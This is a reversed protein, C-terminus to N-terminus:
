DNYGALAKVNRVRQSVNEIEQVSVYIPRDDYYQKRTADITSRMDPLQGGSAYKFKLPNSAANTAFFRLLDNMTLTNDQSNIYELLALNNATTRKNTVYEGGEVEARGGLVKVGGNAHSNGQIVGGNAYKTAAITGIQVGGLAAAVSALAVGLAWPQVALANTVAVATNGIAQALQIKKNAINRKREANEARKELQEQRQQLQEEKKALAQQQDYASQRATMEANIEDLLMLRRDGRATSLEDELSEIKNNHAETISEVEDYADQIIDLEDEIAKREKDIAYMTNHYQVEVIQNASESIMQIGANIVKSIGAAWERANLDIEDLTNKILSALKSIDTKQKELNFLEIDQTDRKKLFAAWEDALDSSINKLKDIIAGGDDIDLNLKYEKNIADLWKQMESKTDEIEQKVKKINYIIFLSKMAIKDSLTEYETKFKKMSVISQTFNVIEDLNYNDTTIQQTFQSRLSELDDFQKELGDILMTNANDQVELLSDYYQSDIELTRRQLEQSLKIRENSFNRWAQLMIAIEAQQDAIDEPSGSITKLGSQYEQVLKDVEKMLPKLGETFAPEDLMMTSADNFYKIVNELSKRLDDGAPGMEGVLNKINDIESQLAEGFSKRTTKEYNTVDTQMQLDRMASNLRKAETEYKATTTYIKTINDNLTKQIDDGDDKLKWSLTGLPSVLEYNLSLRELQKLGDQITKIYVTNQSEIIDLYSADATNYSQTILKQRNLIYDKELQLLKNNKEQLLKTEIESVKIGNERVSKIKESYQKELEAKERKYNKRIANINIEELNSNATNLRNQYDEAQKKAEEQQKKAEESKQKEAQQVAYQADIYSKLSSVLADTASKQEELQKRTKGSANKAFSIALASMLGGAKKMKDLQEDNFVALDKNKNHLLLAEDLEHLKTRATEFEKALEDVGINEFDFDIDLNNITTQLRDTAAELTMTAAEVDDALGLKSYVDGIEQISNMFNENATKLNVMEQSAERSKDIWKGVLNVLEGIGVVLLGIGTSALAVKMIKAARASLKMTTNLAAVAKSSARLAKTWVKNQLTGQQMTSNYLKQAANAIAMIQVTRNIAKNIEEQDQGFLGAVGSAMQMIDVVSEFGQVVLDLERSQSSFSDKLQDSYKRAKELEGAKAVYEQFEANLKAYEETNEKGANALELMQASARQAMDDIESIAQSLNEFQVVQGAIDVQFLQKGKLADISTAINDIASDAKTAASTIANFSNTANEYHGVERTFVGYSKELEKVEDNLRAVSARTKEWSDTDGLSINSLQKKMDALEARKGALTDSYAGSEDRVGSAIQKQIEAIEKKLLKTKELEINQKKGQDTLLKSVKEQEKLLTIQSKDATSSIKSNNLTNLRKDLNDLEKLLLEVESITKEIGNIKISYERQNTM